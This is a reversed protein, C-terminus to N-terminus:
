IYVVYGLKDGYSLRVTSNGMNFAVMCYNKIKNDCPEDVRILVIGIETLYPNQVIFYEGKMETEQSLIKVRNGPDLDCPLEITEWKCYDEKPKPIRTTQQFVSFTKGLTINRIKSM